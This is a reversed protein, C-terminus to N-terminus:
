AEPLVLATVNRQAQLWRSRAASVQMASLERWALSPGGADIGLCPSAAAVVWMGNADQRASPQTDDPAGPCVAFGIVRSQVTSSLQQEFRRPTSVPHRM